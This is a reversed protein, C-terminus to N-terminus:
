AVPLSPVPPLPTFHTHYGPWDSDNPSGCWPPEEVPFRWWLVPGLDEHYDEGPTAVEVVPEIAPRGFRALVARAFDVFHFETSTLFGNALEQLEEDTPGVPEPRALSNESWIVVANILRDALQINAVTPGGSSRAVCLIREFMGRLEPLQEACLTQLNTPDPKM